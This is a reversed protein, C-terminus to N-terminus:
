FANRFMLGCQVSTDTLKYSAVLDNAAHTGDDAAACANNWFRAIMTGTAPKGDDVKKDVTWAEEPRIIANHTSNGAAKAGFRFNNLYGIAYTSADGAYGSAVYDVSWGAGALKSAPVNTGITSDAGGGSGAIGSFSGEVLGANSLQKWFAYTESTQSAAGAEINGDNDGNCTQTGTGSPSAAGCNTMAGWFSTANNMDGPLALYKSRFTNVATQFSQLETTIARLESARILDRGATVGAALLGLIVLVISLEVLSFARQRIDATYPSVAHPIHRM